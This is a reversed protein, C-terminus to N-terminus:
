AISNWINSATRPPFSSRKKATKWDPKFSVFLIPQGRTNVRIAENTKKPICLVDEPCPVARLDAEGWSVWTLLRPSNQFDSVIPASPAAPSVSSNQLWLVLVASYFFFHHTDILFHSGERTISCTLQSQWPETHRLEQKGNCLWNDRENAQNWYWSM